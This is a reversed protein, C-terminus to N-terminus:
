LPKGPSCPKLPSGPGTTLSLKTKRFHDLRLLVIQNTNWPGFPSGPGVPSGPRAPSGTLEYKNVTVGLVYASDLSLFSTRAPGVQHQQHGLCEPLLQLHLLDDFRVFLHRVFPAPIM